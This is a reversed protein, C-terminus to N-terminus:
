RARSPNKAFRAALADLAKVTEPPAGSKASDILAPTGPADVVMLANAAAGRAEAGHRVFADVLARAATARVDHEQKRDKETRWAWANGARGLARAAVRATAEDSTARIRAALAEVVPPLRCEGMGALIARSRERDRSADLAAVLRSAAEATGIRAVAETATRTTEADESADDLIAVLVPIARADRLLGVAEILDRRVVAAERAQLGRPPDLALMELMPMLASPGLSALSRAVPARRARARAHVSPAKTVIASVRAFARPDLTRASAVERRLEPFSRAPMRFAETPKAAEAVAPAGGLVALGIPLSLLLLARAGRNPRSHTM